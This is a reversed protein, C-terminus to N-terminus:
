GSGARGQRGRGIRPPIGAVDGDASAGSRASTTSSSAGVRASSV